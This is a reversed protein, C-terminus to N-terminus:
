LVTRAPARRSQETNLRHAIQRLRRKPAIISRKQIPLGALFWASATLILLTAAVLSVPWTIVRKPHWLPAGGTALDRLLHSGVGLSVALWLRKGPAIREVLWALGIMAAVSHTPPRSPMTMWSNVELSRAALVHDLDLTIASGIAVLGFERKYETNPLVPLTVACATGFHCAMDLMGHRTTGRQQNKWSRHFISTVLLALASGAISRPHILRRPSRM